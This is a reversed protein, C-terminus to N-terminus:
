PALVRDLRALTGGHFTAGLLTLLDVPSPGIAWEPGSVDLDEVVYMARTVPWLLELSSTTLGWIHSADDIVIDPQYRILGPDDQQAIVLEVGDIPDTQAVHDVGVIRAQTFWRRWMRMSEGTHVGLEMLTIPEHRYPAFWDEYLRLYTEPKAAGTLRDAQRVPPAM